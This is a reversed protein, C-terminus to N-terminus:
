DDVPASASQPMQDIWERILKVANEDVLHTGIVPMQNKGRLMMRQLLVSDAPMGPSILRGTSRGLNGHLPVVDVVNMGELPRYYEFHM